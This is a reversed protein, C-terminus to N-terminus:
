TELYVSARVHVFSKVGLSTTTVAKLLGMASHFDEESRLGVLLSAKIAFTAHM